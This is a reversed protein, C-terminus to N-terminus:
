LFARQADTWFPADVLKVENKRTSWRQALPVNMPAKTDEIDDGLRYLGM